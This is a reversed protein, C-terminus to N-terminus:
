IKTQSNSSSRLKCVFRSSNCKPHQQGYLSVHLEICDLLVGDECLLQLTRVNLSVTPNEFMQQSSYCIQREFM